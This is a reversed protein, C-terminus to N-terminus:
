AAEVGQGVSEVSTGPRIDILPHSRAASLLAIHVAFWSQIGTALLNHMRTGTLRALLGHDVQLAAGTRFSNDSRELLTVSFGIRSLVLATMLESLSAGVIVASRRRQATIIRQTASM